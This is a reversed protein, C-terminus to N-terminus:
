CLCILRIWEAWLGKWQCERGVLANGLRIELDTAEIGDPVAAQNHLLHEPIVAHRGFPIYVRSHWM